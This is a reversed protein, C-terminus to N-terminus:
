PNPYSLSVADVGGARSSTVGRKKSDYTHSELIIGASDKVASILSNGDYEFNLTSLDPKTVQLLRGQSDYSYAWSLGVDSTVGTVLNNSNYSFYLHRAAPDTVTVLRPVGDYSLQTTNGNRDIIATLLGSNFDFIRQEGNQFTLTWPQTGSQTMTAIVSAPAGLTWTSGNGTGFFWYGGDARLYAKYNIADGSGSFIREEYTSRWNPGFMGVQFASEASPWMSNWTRLLTLGNGLGPIRVDTQQIYTNGNTLNIPSGAPPTGKSNGSGCTPCWGAPPCNGTPGFCVLNWPGQGLGCTLGGLINDGFYWSSWGMCPNASQAAAGACMAGTLVSFSFLAVLMRRIMVERRWFMFNAVLCLEDDADLLRRALYM